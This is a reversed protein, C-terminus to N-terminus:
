VGTTIGHKKFLVHGGSSQELNEKWTSQLNNTDSMCQNSM